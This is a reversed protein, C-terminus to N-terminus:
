LGATSQEALKELSSTDEIVNYLVQLLDASSLTRFTTRGNVPNDIMLVNHLGAQVATFGTGAIEKDPRLIQTSVSIIHEMHFMGYAVQEADKVLVLNEGKKECITRAAPDGLAKKIDFSVAANTSLIQQCLPTIWCAPGGKEEIVQQIDGPSYGPCTFNIGEVFAKMIGKRYLDVLTCFLLATDAPFEQQFSFPTLYSGGIYPSFFDMIQDLDLPYTLMIDSPMVSLFVKEGPDVGDPASGAFLHFEIIEDGRIFCIKSHIGPQNLVNFASKLEGASVKYRDEIEQETIQKEDGEKTNFPSLVGHTSFLFKGIRIFDLSNITVSGNNSM